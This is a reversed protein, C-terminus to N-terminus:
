DVMIINHLSTIWIGQSMKLTDSLYIYCSKIMASAYIRKSPRFQFNKGTQSREM